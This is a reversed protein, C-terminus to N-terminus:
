FLMGLQSCMEATVATSCSWPSGEEWGEPTYSLGLGAGPNCTRNLLQYFALCNFHLQLLQQTVSNQVVRWWVKSTKDGCWAICGCHSSLMVHFSTTMEWFSLFGGCMQPHYFVKICISGSLMLLFGASLAAFQSDKCLLDPAAYCSKFFTKEVWWLGRQQWLLYVAPFVSHYIVDQSYWLM